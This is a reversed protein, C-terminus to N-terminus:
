LSLALLQNQTKPAPAPNGAGRPSVLLVLWSPSKLSKIAFSFNSRV